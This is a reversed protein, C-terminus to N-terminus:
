ADSSGFVCVTYVVPMALIILDGFNFIHSIISCILSIVSIITMIIGAALASRVSKMDGGRTAKFGFFCMAGFGVAIILVSILNGLFGMFGGSKVLSFMAFRFFGSSKGFLMQFNLIVSLIAIIGSLGSIVKVIGKM